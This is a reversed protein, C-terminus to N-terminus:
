TSAPGESKRTPSSLAWLHERMLVFLASLIVGVIGGVPIKHLRRVGVPMEPVVANAAFLIDSTKGTKDVREAQAIKGKEVKAAVLDYTSKYTDIDRILRQEIKEQEAIDSQM